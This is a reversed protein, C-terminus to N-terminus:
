ADLFDAISSAFDLLCWRSGRERFIAYRVTISVVQLPVYGVAVSTTCDPGQSNDTKKVRLLSHLQQWNVSEVLLYRERHWFVLGRYLRGHVSLKQWITLDRSGDSDRIGAILDGYSHWELFARIAILVGTQSSARSSVHCFRLGM